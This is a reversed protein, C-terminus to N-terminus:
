LGDQLSSVKGFVWPKLVNPRSSNFKPERYEQWLLWLSVKTKKKAKLELHVEHWDPEERPGQVVQVPFLLGELDEDGLGEPLPWGLGASKGRELYVQVTSRGMGLSQGIARYSLGREWRLRYVERIKRMSLREEPM